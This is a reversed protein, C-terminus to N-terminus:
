RIIFCCKAFAKKTSLCNPTPQPRSLAMSTVATIPLRMPARHWEFIGPMASMWWPMIGRWGHHTPRDFWRLPHCQGPEGRPKAPMPPIATFVQAHCKFIGFVLTKDGSGYASQALSCSLSESRAWWFRHSSAFTFSASACNSTLIM